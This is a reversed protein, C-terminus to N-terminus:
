VLFKSCLDMQIPTAPKQVHVIKMYFLAHAVPTHSGSRVSTAPATCPSHVSHTVSPKAIHRVTAARGRVQACCRQASIKCEGAYAHHNNSILMSKTHM